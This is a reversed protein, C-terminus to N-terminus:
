VKLWEAKCSRFWPAIVGPARGSFVLFDWNELYSRGSRSEAWGM